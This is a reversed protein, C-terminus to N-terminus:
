LHKMLENNGGCNDVLAISWTVEVLNDDIGVADRPFAPVGVLKRVPIYRRSVIISSSARIPSYTCIPVCAWGTLAYRTFQAPDHNGDYHDGSPVSCM